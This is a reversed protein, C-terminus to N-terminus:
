ANYSQYLIAEIIEPTVPAPNCKLLRYAMTEKIIAPFMEPTLAFERTSAPIGIELSLSRIADPVQAAIVAPDSSDSPLQMAHAIAAFKDVAYKQNLTLCYPLLIANGIGHPVHALGGMAQSIGHVIGLGGNVFALAALTSALAMTGRADPNDPEKAVTEISQHIMSIATLAYMDSMANSTTSTYAEIAHTMADMGTSITIKHPMSLHLTPDILAYKPFLYNHTISLKVGKEEDLIVSSATVESGSGATTPICILPLAHKTVVGNGGFLYDKASGPNTGLLAVAKATDLISGGGIAVIGDCHHEKLFSAATDVISVTPETPIDSYIEYSVSASETMALLEAFEASRRVHNGTLFLIHTMSLEQCLGALEKAVDVGYKIYTPGKFLFSHMM